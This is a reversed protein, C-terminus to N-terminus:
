HDEEMEEEEDADDGGDDEDDTGWGFYQKMEDVFAQYDGLVYSNSEIYPMVWEEAEGSLLSILFAVKMADNCFHEENVLMYSMTQMIFEPLRGSEGSFRSPYPVPCSPPCVQRLLRARECVLLRLQKLLQHNEMCLAQHRDLLAYLLSLLEEVMTLQKSPRPRPDAGRLQVFLSLLFHPYESSHPGQAIFPPTGALPLLEVWLTM